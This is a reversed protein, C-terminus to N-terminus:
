TNLTSQRGKKDKFPENAIRMKDQAIDRREKLHQKMASYDYSSKLATKHLRANRESERRKVIQSATQRSTKRDM